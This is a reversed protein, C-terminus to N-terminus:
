TEHKQTLLLNQINKNRAQTLKCSSFHTTKKCDLIFLYAQIEKEQFFIYHQGVLVTKM